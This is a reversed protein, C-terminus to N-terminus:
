DRVGDDSDEWWVRLPKIARLAFRLSVVRGDDSPRGILYGRAMGPMPNWAFDCRIRYPSIATDNRYHEQMFFVFSSESLARTHEPDSWAWISTYHPVEGYIWGNPKLVRYMEEWLAFWEATEGQKGVHEFVHWAIIADVSDDPLPIVDRGLDCVLDPALRADRDLHLIEIATPDKVTLGVYRLLRAADWTKRGCGLHLIRSM